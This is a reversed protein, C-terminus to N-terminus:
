IFGFDNMPLNLGKDDELDVWSSSDSLPEMFTFILIVSPSGGALFDPM